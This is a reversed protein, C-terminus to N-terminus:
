RKLNIDFSKVVSGIEDVLSMLESKKILLPFRIELKYTQNGRDDEKIMYSIM